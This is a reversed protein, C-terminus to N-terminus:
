SLNEPQARVSEELAIRPVRVSRGIRVTPLAGTQMLEYTKSRGVGLAEAIERAKLLLQEMKVVEMRQTKNLAAEYALRLHRRTDLGSM